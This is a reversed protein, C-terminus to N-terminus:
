EKPFGLTAKFIEEALGMSRQWIKMEKFNHMGM